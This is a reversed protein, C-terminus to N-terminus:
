AKGKGKEFECGRFGLNAIITPAFFGFANLANQTKAQNLLDITEEPYWRFVKRYPFLIPHLLVLVALLV